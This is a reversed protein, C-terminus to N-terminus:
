EGFGVGESPGLVGSVYLLLFIVTIVVSNLANIHRDNLPFHKEISKPLISM